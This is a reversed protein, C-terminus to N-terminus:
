RWSDFWMWRHFAQPGSLPAVHGIKVVVEQAHALGGAVLLAAGALMSLKLQM